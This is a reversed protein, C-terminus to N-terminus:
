MGGAHLHMMVTLADVTPQAHRAAAEQVAALAPAIAVAAAAAQSIGVGTLRSQKAKADQQRRSPLDITADPVMPNKRRKAEVQDAVPEDVLEEGSMWTHKAAGGGGADAITAGGAQGVGQEFPNYKALLALTAERQRRRREASQMSQLSGGDLSSGEGSARLADGAAAFADLQREQVRGGAAQHARHAQGQGVARLGRLGRLVSPLPDAWAEGQPAEAMLAAALPDWEPYSRPDPSQAFRGVAQWVDYKSDVAQWPRHADELIRGVPDLPPAPGWDGGWTAGAHILNGVPDAPTGWDAEYQMAQLMAYVPDLKAPTVAGTERARDLMDWVAGRQEGQVAENILSRLFDYKQVGAPPQAEALARAPSIREEDKTASAAETLVVKIMDYKAWTSQQLAHQWEAQEQAAKSRAASRRRAQAEVRAALSHAAAAQALAQATRQEQWTALLTVGQGERQLLSSKGTATTAAPVQPSLILAQAASAFFTLLGMVPARMYARGAKSGEATAAQQPGERRAAAQRALSAAQAEREEQGLAERRAAAQTRKAQRGFADSERREAAQHELMAAEVNQQQQGIAHRRAAAERETRAQAQGAAQWGIFGLFRQMPSEAELSAAQQAASPNATAVAQSAGAQLVLEAGSAAASPGTASPSGQLPTQPQASMGATALGSALAGTSEGDSLLKTPETPQEPASATGKAAVPKQQKKPESPEAAGAAADGAQSPVFTTAAPGDQDGQLARVRGMMESQQIQRLRRENPIAASAKTAGAPSGQSQAAQQVLGQSRPAEQSGQTHQSPGASGGAMSERPAGTGSATSIPRPLPESNGQEQDWEDSYGKHGGEAGQYTDLSSKLVLLAAATVGLTAAVRQMSQESLAETLRPSAHRSEFEEAGRFGGRLLSGTHLEQVGAQQQVAMSAREQQLRREHARPGEMVMVAAPEPSLGARGRGLVGAPLLAGAFLPLLAAAGLLTKMLVGSPTPAPRPLNAADEAVSLTLIRCPRKKIHQSARPYVIRQGM